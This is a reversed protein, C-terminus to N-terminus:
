FNPKKKFLVNTVVDFLVMFYQDKTLVDSFNDESERQVALEMISSLVESETYLAATLKSEVAARLKCSYPHSETYNM